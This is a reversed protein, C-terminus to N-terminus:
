RTVEFAASLRDGLVNFAVITLVVASGAAITEAPHNNLLASSGDSVMLGWDSSPPQVGLGIFSLAALDMLASAFSIPAQAGVMLRVNPFIHRTCIRWGSYGLSRCADIYALHRERLAVSRVVRAVYPVYAVSLALVPAVLGQGFIAVALVAFILGPFAFLVDLLRSVARDFPGGIWVATIALATGVTTALVTVLAPGLLSLRGGYLLRSFIDRGLADTGLLHGASPGLNPNLIDTQNPNYPAIVPALVVVMVLALCVAAAVLLVRDRPVLRALAPRPLTRGRSVTLGTM